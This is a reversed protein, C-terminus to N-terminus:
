KTEARAIESEATERAKKAKPHEPNLRISLDWLRIADTIKGQAYCVLGQNYYKEASEVDVAAKEVKATREKKSNDAKKAAERMKKVQELALEIQRRAKTIWDFSSAANEKKASEIMKEWSDVASIYDKKKYQESAANDIESMKKDFDMEYVFKKTKELYEKIEPNEQDLCIIKEWQNLSEQLDGEYYALYAKAYATKEIETTSEDKASKKMTKKIDSLYFSTNKYSVRENKVMKFGDTARLYNKKSYDELAQNYANEVGTKQDYNRRMAKKIIEERLKKSAASEGSECYGGASSLMALFLGIVVKLKIIKYKNRDTVLM